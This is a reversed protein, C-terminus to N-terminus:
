PMHDKDRVIRVNKGTRGWRRLGATQSSSGLAGFSDAVNGFSAARFQGPALTVIVLGLRLRINLRHRYPKPGPVLYMM